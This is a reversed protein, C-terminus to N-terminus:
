DSASPTRFAVLMNESIPLLIFPTNNMKRVGPSAQKAGMQGILETRGFRDLNPRQSGYGRLTKFQRPVGYADLRNCILWVNSFTPFRGSFDAESHCVAVPTFDFAYSM